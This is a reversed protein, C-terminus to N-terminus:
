DTVMEDRPRPNFALSVSHIELLPQFPGNSPWEPLEIEAIAELIIAVGLGNGTTFNTGPVTAGLFRNLGLTRIAPPVDSTPDTPEPPFSVSALEEARRPDKTM